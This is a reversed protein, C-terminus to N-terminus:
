AERVGEDHRGVMASRPCAPNKTLELMDPGARLSESFNWHNMRKRWGPVLQRYVMTGEPLWKTEVIPFYLTEVYVCLNSFNYSVGM